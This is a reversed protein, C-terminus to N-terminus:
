EKTVKLTGYNFRIDYYKSIDDRISGKDDTLHVAYSIVQNKVTGVDIISNFKLSLTHNPLLSGSTIWWDECILAEGDYVKSASGTTVTIKRKQITMTGNIKIVNYLKNTVDAGNEDYIIVRSIINTYTGPTTEKVGNDTMYVEMTHGSILTGELMYRYQEWDSFPQGDYEKSASYASVAVTVKNNEPNFGSLSSGTVEVPVWGFGDLYVEVWAHGSLTSVTTLVGTEVGPAFGTTYRAPIGFARYMMTASTAYNQCIGEKATELFYVAVDVGEPYPKAKLNYTAANQIYTKIAYVTDIQSSQKKIGNEAALELMKTKTYEPIQLYNEYVFERYKAEDKSYSGSIRHSTIDLPSDMVSYNYFTAVYQAQDSELFIDDGKFSDNTSATFYPILLPYGMLREIRIQSMDNKRNIESNGIYYLPNNSGSGTLVYPKAPKFSSGTYDGYSGARLYLRQYKYKSNLLLIKAVPLDVLETSGSSITTDHTYDDPGATLDNDKDNDKDDDDIAETVKLTGYKYTIDYSNTSDYGDAGVMEATFTNPSEGIETQSGAYYGTLRIDFPALSGATIKLSHKTLPTGDYPKQASLSTITIPRKTVTLDGEEVEIKYGRSTIDEGDANTVVALLLNKKTGASTISGITSFVLTDGDATKGSVHACKASTLPSGDYVKSASSTTFKLVIPTITLTGSNIKISYNNTVNEGKSDTIMVSLGSKYSGVYVQGVPLVYLTHSSLVSGSELKWEHSLLPKGDYVKEASGTSFELDIPKVELKGWRTDINYRETIDEGNSNLISLKDPRLTYNGTNTYDREFVYSIRDGDALSGSQITLEPAKYPKADYLKSFSGTTLMINRQTVNLHSGKYNLKYAGTVDEGDSNTIKANSTEVSVASWTKYEFNINIHSIKDGDALGNCKLSELILDESLDGYACSAIGVSIVAERSVLAFAAEGSYRKMGFPNVSVARVLYDGAKVPAKESWTGDGSSYEYKVKCLFANYHMQPIDGYETDECSVEGWFMGICFMFTFIIGLLLLLSLGIAIKHKKLFAIRQATRKMKQEYKEYRGAPYPVYEPNIVRKSNDSTM